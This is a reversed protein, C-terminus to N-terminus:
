GIYDFDISSNQAQFIGWVAWFLHNIQLSLLSVSVMDNVLGFFYVVIILMSNLCACACQWHQTLVCKRSCVQKSRQVVRTRKKCECFWRCVHLCFVVSHHETSVAFAHM